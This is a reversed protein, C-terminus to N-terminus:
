NVIGAVPTAIRVEAMRQAFMRGFIKGGGLCIGVLNGTKDATQNEAFRRLFYGCSYSGTPPESNSSGNTRFDTESLLFESKTQM